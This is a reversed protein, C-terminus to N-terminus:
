SGNRRSRPQVEVLQTWLEELEGLLVGESDAAVDRAIAKSADAREQVSALPKVMATARQMQQPTM